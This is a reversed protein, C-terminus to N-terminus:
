MEKRQGWSRFAQFLRSRLGRTIARREESCHAALSFTFNHLNITFLIFSKKARARASTGRLKAARWERTNEVYQSYLFILSQECDLQQAILCRNIHGYQTLSIDTNFLTLQFSYLFYPRITANIPTRRTHLHGKLSGPRPQSFISFFLSILVVVAAFLRRAASDKQWKMM